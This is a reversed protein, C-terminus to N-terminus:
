ATGLPIVGLVADTGAMTQLIEHVTGDGGCALVTDCGRLIAQQAHLGATNAAETAIAEIEIGAARFVEVIRGVLAARKAPQQGSAPNYILVARKARLDTGDGRTPESARQM